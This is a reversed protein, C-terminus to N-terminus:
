VHDSYWPRWYSLKSVELQCSFVKSHEWDSRLLLLRWGALAGPGACAFEKLKKAVNHIVIYIGIIDHLNLASHRVKRRNYLM